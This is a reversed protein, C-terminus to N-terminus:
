ARREHGGVVCRLRSVHGHTLHENLRGLIVESDGDLEAAWVAGSCNITVIGAREGVPEAEAAIVRGVLEPWLRQVEALVTQPAVRGQLQLLASSLPRPARRHLSM